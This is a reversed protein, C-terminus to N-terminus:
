EFGKQIKAKKYEKETIEDFVEKLEEISIRVAVIGIKDLSSYKLKKIYLKFDNNMSLDRKISYSNDDLIKTEEIKRISLRIVTFSNTLTFTLLKFADIIDYYLLKRFEEFLFIDHNFECMHNELNEVPKFDIDLSSHYTAKVEETETKAEIMEIFKDLNFKYYKM